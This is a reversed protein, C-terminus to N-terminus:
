DVSSKPPFVQRQVFATSRDRERRHFFVDDVAAADKLIEGNCRRPRAVFLKGQLL